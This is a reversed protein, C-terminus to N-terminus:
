AHDEEFLYGLIGDRIARRHVWFWRGIQYPVVVYWVQAFFIANSETLPGNSRSAEVTFYLMMGVFWGFGFGMGPLFMLYGHGLLLATFAAMALLLITIGFLDM